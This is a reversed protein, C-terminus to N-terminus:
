DWLAEYYKAFLRRGNQKRAQHVAYAASDFYHAPKSPDEKGFVLKGGDMKMSLNDTNHHFLDEDDFTNQEFAWIMEAMIWDWRAEHLNDTDWENEKPAAATSRLNEPVDEDDTYPCGHNTEKLQVLLPHIILALTHDLSWTDYPDLEVKIEREGEDPYPGMYIKM